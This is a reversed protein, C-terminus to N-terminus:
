GDDPDPQPNPLPPWTRGTYYAAVTGSMSDITGYRVSQSDPDDPDPYDPLNGTVCAVLGELSQAYLDRLYTYPSLDTRQQEPFYSLEVEAAAGIAVCGRALDACVDGVRGVAQHVLIVQHAIAEQVQDDTPRTAPTFTGIENGNSDKTRARIWAAVDEVTCSLDPPTIPDISM